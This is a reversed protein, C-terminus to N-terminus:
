ASQAEEIRMLVRKKLMERARFLHSKVTGMPLALVESIEEYRMEQVYFLLLASRYQSPLRDTEEQLIDAMERGELLRLASSEEGEAAVRELVAQDVPVSTEEEEGRRGLLTLCRNYLIRYFWTSFRSEGRFRELARYCRLFADQVAEEAEERNGLLRFALTLARDRHRDVIEAFRRVNGARVDEIVSLDIDDL